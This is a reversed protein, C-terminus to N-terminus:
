LLLQGPHLFADVFEFALSALVSPFYTVFVLCLMEGRQPGNGKGRRKQPSPTPFICSV